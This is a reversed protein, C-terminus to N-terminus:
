NLNKKPAQSAMEALQEREAVIVNLNQQHRVVVSTMEELRKDLNGLANQMTLTWGPGGTMTQTLAITDRCDDLELALVDMQDSFVLMRQNLVVQNKYLKNLEEVKVGFIKEFASVRMLKIIAKILGYWETLWKKM